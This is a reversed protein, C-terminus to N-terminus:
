RRSRPGTGRGGSRAQRSGAPAKGSGGDGAGPLTRRPGVAVWARTLHQFATVGAPGARTAAGGPLLGLEAGSHGLKAPINQLGRPEAGVNGGRSTRPSPVHCGGKRAIHYSAVPAGRTRAVIRDGGLGLEAGGSRAQRSGALFSDGLSWSGAGPSIHPRARIGGAGSHRKPPRHHRGFTHPGPGLPPPPPTGYGGLWAQRWGAPARGLRWSGAGPHSTRGPVFAPGTGIADPEASAYTGDTRAIIRAGSARNRALTVSSPKAPLHQSRGPRDYRRSHPARGSVFATGLRGAHHGAPSDAPRARALVRRHGLRREAGAQGLKGRDQQRRVSITMGRHPHPARGPVLGRGM